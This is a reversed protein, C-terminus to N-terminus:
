LWTAEFKKFTSYITQFQNETPTFGGYWVYEFQLMLRAMDAQLTPQQIEKLYEQNTKKSLIKLRGKEGMRLLADVFLYRTALRFEKKRIAEAALTAADAVLLPDEAETGQPVINKNTSRFLVSNGAWLRWLLFILGAIALIWLLPKVWNFSIDDKPLEKEKNELPAVKRNRLASDIYQMYGFEKGSGYGDVTKKDIYRPTLEPLTATELIEDDSEDAAKIEQMPTGQSDSIVSSDQQAHVHMAFIFFCSLLLWRMKMM